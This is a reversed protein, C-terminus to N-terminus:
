NGYDLTTYSCGTLDVDDSSFVFEYFFHRFYSEGCMFSVGAITTFFTYKGLMHLFICMFAFYLFTINTIYIMM